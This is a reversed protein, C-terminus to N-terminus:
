AASETRIASSPMCGSNSLATSAARMRASSSPLHCPLDLHAILDAIAIELLHINADTRHDRGFGERLCALRRQLQPDIEARLDAHLLGGRLDRRMIRGLRKDAPLNKGDDIKRGPLDTRETRFDQCEAELVLGTR